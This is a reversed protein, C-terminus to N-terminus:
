EVYIYNLALSAVHPVFLSRLIEVEVAAMGHYRYAVGM